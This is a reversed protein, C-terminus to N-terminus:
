IIIIKIYVDDCTARCKEAHPPGEDGGGGGCFIIEWSDLLILLMAM